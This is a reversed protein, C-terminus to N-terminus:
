RTPARIVESQYKDLGTLPRRSSPEKRLQILDAIYRLRAEPGSEVGEKELLEALQSKLPEIAGPRSKLPCYSRWQAKTAFTWTRATIKESTRSEVTAIEENSLRRLFIVFEGDSIPQHDSMSGAPTFCEITTQSLPAGALTKRVELNIFTGVPNGDTVAPSRFNHIQPLRAVVIAEASDIVQVPNWEPAGTLVDAVCTSM